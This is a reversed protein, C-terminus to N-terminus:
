QPRGADLTAIEGDAIVNKIRFHTALDKFEPYERTVDRGSRAWLTTKEMKSKRSPAFATGNQNSSGIPTRSPASKFNHSISRSAKQADRANKAKV